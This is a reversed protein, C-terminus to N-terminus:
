QLPKCDYRIFAFFRLHWKAEADRMVSLSPKSSTELGQQFDRTLFCLGDRSGRTPPNFIDRSVHLCRSGSRHDRQDLIWIAQISVSLGLLLQNDELHRRTMESMFGASDGDGTKM